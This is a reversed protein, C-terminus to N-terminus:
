DNPIYHSTKSHSSYIQYYFQYSNSISPPSFSFSGFISGINKGFAVQHITIGNVSNGPYVLETFALLVNLIPSSHEYLDPYLFLLLNLLGNTFMQSSLLTCTLISPPLLSILDLHYMSFVHYLIDLISYVPHLSHTNSLPTVFLEVILFFNSFKGACIKAAKTFGSVLPVWTLLEYIM